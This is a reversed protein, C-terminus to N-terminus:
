IQIRKVNDRSGKRSSSRAGTSNSKTPLRLPTQQGQKKHKIHDWYTTATSIHPPLPPPTPTDPNSCISSDNDFPFLPGENSNHDKDVLSFFWNSGEEPHHWGEIISNGKLDQVIVKQKTFNASLGANCIPGIDILTRPFNEMAHGHHAAPPIHKNKIQTPASSTSKIGNAIRVQIHPTSTNLHTVPANKSFYFGSAGSNAVGLHSKPLPFTPHLPPSYSFSVDHAM